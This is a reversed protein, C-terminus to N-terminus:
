QQRAEGQKAAAGLGALAREAEKRYDSEPFDKVLRSLHMQALNRLMEPTYEKVTNPPLSALKQKGKGEVLYVASMGAMYLAEDIRSFEPYGAVLEDARKLASFYAKRNKFYTRAVELEHLASKEAEADKVADADPGKVVAGGQARAEVFTAGVALALACVSLLFRKM